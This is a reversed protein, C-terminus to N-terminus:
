ALLTEHSAALAHYDLQLKENEVRERDIETVLSQERDIALRLGAIQNSVAQTEAEQQAALQKADRQLSEAQQAFDDKTSALGQELGQRLSDVQNRLSQQATRNETEVVEAVRQQLGASEVSQRHAQWVFLFLAFVLVSIGIFLPWTVQLWVPRRQMKNLRALAAQAAANAPEKDLIKQWWRAAEGLRGQQACIRAQLDLAIAPADPHEVTPRLLSEARDYAGERALDTAQSVAFDELLRSAEGDLLRPPATAPANM